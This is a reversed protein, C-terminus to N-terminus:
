SAPAANAVSLAQWVLVAWAVLLTLGGLPTIAGLWHPGGLAMAYLTTAFVAGGALFLSAILGARELGLTGLGIIILAAIAHASQYSAGTKIWDRAQPDNLGHAGFAGFAVALFGSLGALAIIWKRQHLM